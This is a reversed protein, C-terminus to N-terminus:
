EDGTWIGFPIGTASVIKKISDFSPNLKEDKWKGVTGNSLDCKKEFAMISIGKEACYKVIKEYIM